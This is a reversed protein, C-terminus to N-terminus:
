LSHDMTIFTFRCARCMHSATRYPSASKESSRRASSARRAATGGSNAGVRASLSVALSAQSAM